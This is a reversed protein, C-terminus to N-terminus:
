PIKLAVSFYSLSMPLDKRGKRQGEGLRGGRAGELGWEMVAWAGGSNSLCRQQPSM